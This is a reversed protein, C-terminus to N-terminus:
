HLGFMKKYQRINQQLSTSQGWLIYYSLYGARTYDNTDLDKAHRSRYNQRRKPDKHITYDEYGRAGFKTKTQHGNEDTFIAEMKKQSGPPAQRIQMKM